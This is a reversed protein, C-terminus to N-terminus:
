NAFHDAFIYSSFHYGESSTLGPMSHWMVTMKKSFVDFDFPMLRKEFCFFFAHAQYEECARIKVQKGHVCFFM